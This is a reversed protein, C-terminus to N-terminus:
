FHHPLSRVLSLYARRQEDTLPATLLDNQEFRDHELDYLEDSGHKRRILKYRENRIAQKWNMYPGFGNPKFWESYTWSRLSQRGPDRFYPVLSVSDEASASVRAIEAITAFVDTVQVLARCEGTRVGPGAVIFPVNIGGEYLTNKSHDPLFPYDTAGPATGNDGIFFVYADPDLADLIRGIQDDMAEIMAKTHVIPTEDPDGALDYSHLGAPPVHLPLHAANFAVWLFSPGVYALARVADDATDVTAYIQHEHQQGNVTKLWLFYDGGGLEWSLNYLSGSYYDFGVEGPHSTSQHHDRLHWKGVAFTRIGPRRRDDDRRDAPWLQVRRHLDATPHHGGHRDQFRAPGDSHSRAVAFM